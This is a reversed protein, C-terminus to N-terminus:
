WLNALERRVLDSINTNAAAQRLSDIPRNFTFVDFIDGNREEEEFRGQHLIDRILVTDRFSMDSLSRSEGSSLTEMSNAFATDFNASQINKIFIEFFTDLHRTINQKLTQMFGNINEHEQWEREISNRVSQPMNSSAISNSPPSQLPLLVTSQLANEFAHNLEGFRKYLEDQNDGYRELLEERLEAYRRSLNEIAVEFGDPSNFGVRFFEVMFGFRQASEPHLMHIFDGNENKENVIERGTLEKFKAAKAQFKDQLCVASTNSNVNNIM